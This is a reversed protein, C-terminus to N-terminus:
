DHDHGRGLVNSIAKRFDLFLSLSMQLYDGAGSHTVIAAEAIM